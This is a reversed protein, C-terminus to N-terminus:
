RLDFKHVVSLFIDQNNCRGPISGPDRAQFALISVMTSVIHKEVLPSSDPNASSVLTVM